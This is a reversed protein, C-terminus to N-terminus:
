DAEAAIIALGELVLDPAPECGEDLLPALVDAGGGTLLCPLRRGIHREIEGRGRDIFAAAAYLTGATVASRTDAALPAVVGEGEDPIGATAGYLARRMTVVGPAILGGLHRGDDDLADITIATGCDVICLAKAVRRRAAVLAAWRDAGLRVPERYANHVGFGRIPSSVLTPVVGYHVRFWAELGREVEQGAVNVCFVQVPATLGGWIDAFTDALPQGVYYVASRERLRAGEAFAWKIRSNGIDILLNM